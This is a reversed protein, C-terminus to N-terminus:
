WSVHWRKTSHIYSIKPLSEIPQLTTLDDLVAGFEIVECTESSLGTTELDISIYKM